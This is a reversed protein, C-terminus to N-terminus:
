GGDVRPKRRNAQDPQRGDPAAAGLARLRERAQAAFRSRPHEDALERYRASAKPVDGQQELVGGAALLAECVSDEHAYLLAVKLYESLADDLRGESEHVRGLGLRAAAALEGQDLALTREFAARAERGRREALLARGRWLEAEALNPFQPFARALEALAAASERWRELRGLALGFRFLARARLPIAGPEAGGAAPAQKCAEDFWRAAEELREARYACEGRLFHAEGALVGSPRRELLTALAQEADSLEGRELHVFGLKYLAEAARPSTAGADNARVAAAAEFLPLARPADGAALHAEGVHYSAEALGAASAGAKRAHKLAAEAAAPEGRALELYAAELFAEAALAPTKLSALCAELLAGAEDFRRAERLATLVRRAGALRRGEDGSLAALARWSALGAELEGQEVQVSILLELAAERLSADIKERAGGQVLPALARECAELDRREWACWASGYAARAAVGTGVALEQVRAYRKAADAHAGAALELEALELEVSARQASGPYRALWEGLRKRAEAGEAARAVALEVEEAFRGRPYRELYRTAPARAAAPTGEESAIRVLMALAEEAEPADAHRELLATFRQRAGALDRALYRCWGLRAALRAAEAGDAPHAFAATFAAEAEQWRQGAFHAEALVVRAAQARAEDPRSELLREALEAADDADGRELATVAAAHLAQSSGSQEYAAQAEAARGEAALCDGRLM